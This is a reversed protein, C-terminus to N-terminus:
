RERQILKPDVYGTKGIDVGDVIKMGYSGQTTCVTSEMRTNAPLDKLKTKMAEDQYLPVAAANIFVKPTAVDITDGGDQTDKIDVVNVYFQQGTGTGGADLTEIKVMLKGAVSVTSLQKAKTGKALDVDALDTAKKAKAPDATVELTGLTKAGNWMEAAALYNQTPVGMSALEIDRIDV